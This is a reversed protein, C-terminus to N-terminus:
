WPHHLHFAPVPFFFPHGTKPRSTCVCAWLSSFNPRRKACVQGVLWAVPPFPGGHQHPCKPTSNPKRLIANIFAFLPSSSPLWLLAQVRDLGPSAGGSVESAVGQRETVSCAVLSALRRAAHAEFRGVGVRDQDQRSQAAQKQREMEMNLSALNQQTDALKELLITKESEKLSLAQSSCPLDASDISALSVSHLWIGASLFPKEGQMCLRSSVGAAGERTHLGHWIWTGLRVRM